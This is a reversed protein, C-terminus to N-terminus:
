YRGFLQEPNNTRENEKPVQEVQKLQLLSKSEADAVGNLSVAKRPVFFPYDHPNFGSEYYKQRNRRIVREVNKNQADITYNQEKYPVSENENSFIPFAASPPLQSRINQLEKRINQRNFGMEKLLNFAMDYMVKCEVPNELHIGRELGQRTLVSGTLKNYLSYLDKRQLTSYFESARGLTFVAPGKSVWNDVVITSDPFAPLELPNSSRFIKNGKQLALLVQHDTAPDIFTYFDFKDFVERIKFLNEHRHYDLFIGINHLMKDSVEGCNGSKIEAVDIIALTLMRCFLLENHLHSLDLRALVQKGLKRVVISIVPDFSQSYINASEIPESKGIIKNLFYMLDEIDETLNKASNLGARLGVTTIGENFIGGKAYYEKRRHFDRKNQTSNVLNQDDDSEYPSNGQM